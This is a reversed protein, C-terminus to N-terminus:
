VCQEKPVFLMAEQKSALCDSVSRIELAQQEVIQEQQVSSQKSLETQSKNPQFALAASSEKNKTASNKGDHLSIKEMRKTISEDTKSTQLRLSHWLYRQRYKGTTNLFM